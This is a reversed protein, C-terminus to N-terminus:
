SPWPSRNTLFVSSSIDRELTGLLGTTGAEPNGATPILIAKCTPTTVLNETVQQGVCWWVGRMTFGATPANMEVTLM